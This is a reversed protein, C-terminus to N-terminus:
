ASAHRYSVSAVCYIAYILPKYSTKYSQLGSHLEFILIKIQNMVSLQLLINHAFCNNALPARSTRETIYNRLFIFREYYYLVHITSDLERFSIVIPKIDGHLMTYNCLSFTYPLMLVQKWIFLNFNWIFM